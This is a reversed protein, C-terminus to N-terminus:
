PLPTQQYLVGQWGSSTRRYTTTVFLHREAYTAVYTVAGANSGLDWTRVGGIASAELPGSPDSMLAVIAAKDFVGAAVVALADDALYREYFAGDRDRTAALAQEKLDLLADHNTM